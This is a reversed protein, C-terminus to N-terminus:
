AVELKPIYDPMYQAAFAHFDRALDMCDDHMGPYRYQELFQPPKVRYTKDLRPDPTIVFVNWRFLDAEFMDLYFRWQCGEIYGEPRFTATTKHDHVVRGDICDTQGTVTLDGYEGYARVERIAPLHFEADPLLFRYGNAEFVTHEGLTAAEMAKHFATGAKMAESPVGSTIWQVLEEATSDENQRWRRFAEISSVRAIM